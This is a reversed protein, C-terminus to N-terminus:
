NVRMKYCFKSLNKLGFQIKLHLQIGNLFQTVKSRPLSVQEVLLRVLQKYTSVGMQALTFDPRCLAVVGLRLVKGLLKKDLDAFEEVLFHYFTHRQIFGNAFILSIIEGERKLIEKRSFLNHGADEVIEKLSLERGM